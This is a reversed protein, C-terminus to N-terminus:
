DSCESTFAPLLCHDGRVLLVQELFGPDRMIFHDVRGSWAGSTVGDPTRKGGFRRLSPLARTRVNRGLSACVNPGLLLQDGGLILRIARRCLVM